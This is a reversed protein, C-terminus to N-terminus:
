VCLFFKVTDMVGNLDRIVLDPSWIAFQTGLDSEISSELQGLWKYSKHRFIMYFLTTFDPIDTLSEIEERTALFVKLDRTVFFLKRFEHKM